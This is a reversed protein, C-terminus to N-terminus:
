KEVYPSTTATATGATRPIQMAKIARASTMALRRMPGASEEDARASYVLGLPAVEWGRWSSGARRSRRISSCSRNRTLRALVLVSSIPSQSTPKLDFVESTDRGTFLM